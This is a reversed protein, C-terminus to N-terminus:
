TLNQLAVMLVFPVTKLVSHGLSKSNHEALEDFLTAVPVPGALPAPDTPPTETGSDSDTDQSLDLGDVDDSGSPHVKRTTQLFVHPSSSM